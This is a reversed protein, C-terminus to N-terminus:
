ESVYTVRLTGERRLNDINMYFVGTAVADRVVAGILTADWTGTGIFPTLDRPLGSASAPETEVAFPWESYGAPLAAIVGYHPISTATHLDGGPTGVFSTGPSTGDNPDYVAMLADEAGTLSFFWPNWTWQEAEVEIRIEVLTGIRPDFQPIPVAYPIGHSGIVAYDVVFTQEKVPAVIPAAPTVPPATSSSVSAALAAASLAFALQISM